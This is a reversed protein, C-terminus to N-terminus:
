LRWIILDFNKSLLPRIYKETLLETDGFDVLDLYYKYKTLIKQYMTDQQVSKDILQLKILEDIISKVTKILNAKVFSYNGQYKIRILNDFDELSNCKTLSLFNPLITNFSDVCIFNYIYDGIEEVRNPLEICSDFDGVNLFKENVYNLMNSLIEQKFENNIYNFYNIGLNNFNIYQDKIVTEAEQLDDFRILNDPLLNPHITDISDISNLDIM